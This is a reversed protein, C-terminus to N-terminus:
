WRFIKKMILHTFYLTAVPLVTVGFLFHNFRADERNKQNRKEIIADEREKEEQHKFILIDVHSFLPALIKSTALWEKKTPPDMTKVVENAAKEKREWKEKKTLTQDRDVKKTAEELMGMSPIKCLSELVEPHNDCCIKALHMFKKRPVPEIIDKSWMSVTQFIEEKQIPEKLDELQKLYTTFHLQVAGYCKKNLSAITSREKEESYGVIQAIVGKPLNDFNTIKLAM